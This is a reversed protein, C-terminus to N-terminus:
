RHAVVAVTVQAAGGALLAAAAADATAGTTLVDDVLLVRVRAVSEPHRVRFAGAINAWRGAASATASQSGTPRVRVLARRRCPLGLGRALAVALEDAQNYGRVFRRRWHLPVPVVVEPSGTLLDARRERTWLEGLRFALLEGAEHKMALVAARLVGDYLGLRTAATFHYRYQKCRACGGATDTHPGVLSTCRPCKDGPDATLAEACLPCFHPPGDGTDAHCVLCRPPWVLHGAGRVLHGVAALM